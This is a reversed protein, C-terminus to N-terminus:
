SSSSSDLPSSVSRRKMSQTLSTSARRISVSSRTTTIPSSTSPRLPPVLPAVAPASSTAGSRTSPVGMLSFAKAPRPPPIASSPRNRGTTSNMYASKMHTAASWSKLWTALARCMNPPSLATGNTSRLLSAAPM